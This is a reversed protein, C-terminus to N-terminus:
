EKLFPRNIVKHLNISSYWLSLGVLFSITELKQEAQRTKIDNYYKIFSLCVKLYKKKLEQRHNMLEQIRPHIGM